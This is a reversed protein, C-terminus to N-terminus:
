TVLDAETQGILEAPFHLDFAFDAAIPQTGIDGAAVVRGINKQEPQPQLPLAPAIERRATTEVRCPIRTSYGSARPWLRRQRRPLRDQLRLRLQPGRIQARLVAAHAALAIMADTLQIEGGAGREQTELIDFIEPQLIYRGTISLNSPANGRQRSKSWAPSRSPRARPSASASSAMCSPRPGRASGGGRHHQGQEALKEAADIMQALCGRRTRCWYTRCCCRSRSTASSTARAGCRM